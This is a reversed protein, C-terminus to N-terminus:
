ILTHPKPPPWPPLRCKWVSPKFKWGTGPGHPGGNTPGGTSPGPGAPAAPSDGGGNIHTKLDCKLCNFTASGSISVIGTNSNTQGHPGPYLTVPQTTTATANITTAQNSTMSCPVDVHFHPESNADGHVGGPIGTWNIKQGPGHWENYLDTGSQVPTFVGDADLYVLKAIVDTSCPSIEAQCAPCCQGDTGSVTFQMRWAGTGTTSGVTTSHRCYTWTLGSSAQTDIPADDGYVYLSLGDTYGLLDRTLWRGLETSWSRNRSLNTHAISSCESGALSKRSAVGAATLTGRALSTGVFNNRITSKDTSDVDGDLDIDGRVDYTSGNIWTQVQNVDTTDTVGNSDTDGGPLGFPIGYSSYKVWEKMTGSSTVVASVDARWNQCYYLREELVGDSASTWTTNADRNRCVVLDIYSSTGRGDVGAQHPVFDEKPSTDSERYRAIVRWSEDFADYFWKDSSDVLGSADTDEHLGIRHGLGNYRYEALLNTNARNKV